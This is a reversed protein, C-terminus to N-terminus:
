GGVTANRVACSAHHLQMHSARFRSQRLIDLSWEKCEVTRLWNAHVLHAAHVSFQSDYLATFGNAYATRPLFYVSDPRRNAVIQLADQEPVRLHVMLQQADWLLRQGIATRRVWWVGGNVCLRHPYTQCPWEQQVFLHANPWRRAYHRAIWAEVNRQVVVDADLLMIGREHSYPLSVLLSHVTSLRPRIMTFYAATGWAATANANAHHVVTCAAPAHTVLHWEHVVRETLALWRRDTFLVLLTSCFVFNM